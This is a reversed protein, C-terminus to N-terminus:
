LTCSIDQMDINFPIAFLDHNRGRIAMRTTPETMADTM